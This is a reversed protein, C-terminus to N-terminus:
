RQPQSQNDAPDRRTPAQPAAAPLLMWATVDNHSGPHGQILYGLPHSPHKWKSFTHAKDVARHTGWTVLLWTDPPPPRDKMSTWGAPVVPPPASLAARRNWAARAAAEAEDANPATALKHECASYSDCYCVVAAFYTTADANDPRVTLQPREGCFPCPKLADSM